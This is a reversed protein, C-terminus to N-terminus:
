EYEKFTITKGVLNPIESKYNGILFGTLMSYPQREVGKITYEKDDVMIPDGVKMKVLLTFDPGDVILEKPVNCVLITGRGVVQVVNLINASYKM